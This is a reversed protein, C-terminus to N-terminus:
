FVEARARYRTCVSGGQTVSPITVARPNRALIAKQRSLLPKKRPRKSPQIRQFISAAYIKLLCHTARQPSASPPQAEKGSSLSFPPSLLAHVRTPTHVHTSRMREHAGESRQSHGGPRYGALSRHGQSEGPLFVPTTAM